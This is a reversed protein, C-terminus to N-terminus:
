KNVMRMVTDVDLSEVLRFESKHKEYMDYDSSNGSLSFYGSEFKFSYTERNYGGFGNMASFNIVVYLDGNYEMIQIRHVELSDPKKLTAKVVGVFVAAYTNYEDRSVTPKPTATPKPTPKPTAKPTLVFDKEARSHEPYVATATHRVSDYFFTFNGSRNALHIKLLGDNDTEYDVLTCETDQLHQSFTNYDEESFNPYVEQISGDDLAEVTSPERAIAVCIRPLKQGFEKIEPLISGSDASTSRRNAEPTTGDPYIVSATQTNWNFILRFSFGNLSIVATLVGSETGSDTLEAGTEALYTSFAAYDEDSFTDWTLITGEEGNTQEDPKRGIAFEASPMIGGVPPLISEGPDVAEKETEARAGSPYTVVAKREAWDYSFSMEADRASIVASMTNGEAFYEKITAGIGALYRGFALYDEGSFNLYTEQSGVETETQEDASRGISLGVSPLATGLMEDMSPFLGGAGAVPMSSVFISMCLVVSVLLRKWYQRM